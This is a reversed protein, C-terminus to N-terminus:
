LDTSLFEENFFYKIKWATNHRQAKAKVQEETQFAVAAWVDLPPGCM